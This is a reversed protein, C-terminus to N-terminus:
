NQPVDIPEPAASLPHVERGDDTVGVAMQWNANAVVGGSPHYPCVGKVRCNRPTGCVWCYDGYSNRPRDDAM